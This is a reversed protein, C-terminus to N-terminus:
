LRMGRAQTIELQENDVFFKKLELSIKVAAEQPVQLREDVAHTTTIAECRRFLPLFPFFLHPRSVRGGRAKTVTLVRSVLYRSLVYYHPEDAAGLRVKVTPPLCSFTTDASHVNLPSFARSATPAGEGKVYDYKSSTPRSPSMGGAPQAGAPQKDAALAARHPM